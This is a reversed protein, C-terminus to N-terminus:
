VNYEEQRAVLAPGKVSFLIVVCSVPAPAAVCQLGPKILLLLLIIKENEEGVRNVIIASWHVKIVIITIILEAFLM